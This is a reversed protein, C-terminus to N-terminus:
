WRLHLTARLGYDGSFSYLVPASGSRAIGLVSAHQIIFLVTSHARCSPTWCGRGDGWLNGCRQYNLVFNRGM